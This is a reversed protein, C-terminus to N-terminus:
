PTWRGADSGMLTATHNGTAHNVDVRAIHMRGRWTTGKIEARVDVPRGIRDTLYEVAEFGRFTVELEHEPAGFEVVKLPPFLGTVPDPDPNRLVHPRRTDMRIGALQVKRMREGPKSRIQIRM